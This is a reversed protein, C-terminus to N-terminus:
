ARKEKERNYQRVRMEERFADENEFEDDEPVYVRGNPYLIGYNGELNQIYEPTIPSVNGSASFGWAIVPSRNFWMEGDECGWRLVEYGPQAVVVGNCQREWDDHCPASLEAVTGDKLEAVVRRGMDKKWRDFISAITDANILAGGLKTIFTMM